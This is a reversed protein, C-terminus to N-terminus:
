HVYASLSLVGITSLALKDDNLSWKPIVCVSGIPVKIEAHGLTLKYFRAASSPVIPVFGKSAFDSNLVLAVSDLTEV